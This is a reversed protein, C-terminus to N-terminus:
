GRCRTLHQPRDMKDRLRKFKDKGGGGGVNSKMWARLQVLATTDQSCFGRGGVPVHGRSFVTWIVDKEHRLSSVSRFNVNNLLTYGQSLSCTEIKQGVVVGCVKLLGAPIQEKLFLGKISLTTTGIIEQAQFTRGNWRTGPWHRNDVETIKLLSRHHRKPHSSEKHLTSRANYSMSRGHSEPASHWYCTGKRKQERGM